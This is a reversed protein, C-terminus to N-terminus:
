EQGKQMAEWFEKAKPFAMIALIVIAVAILYSKNYLANGLGGISGLVYACLGFFALFNLKKM